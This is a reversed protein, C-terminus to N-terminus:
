SLEQKLKQIEENLTELRKAKQLLELIKAAGKEDVAISWRYACPYNKRLPNKASGCVLEIPGKLLDPRYIYGSVHGCKPCKEDLWLARHQYQM